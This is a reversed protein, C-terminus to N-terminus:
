ALLIAYWGEFAAALQGDQEITSAVQIRGKKKGCILSEIMEGQWEWLCTAVISERVPLAHRIRGETLVISAQLEALALQFLWSFTCWRGGAFRVSQTFAARLHQATCM